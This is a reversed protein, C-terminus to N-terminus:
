PFHFLLNCQNLSNLREKFHIQFLIIRDHSVCTAQNYKDKKSNIKCKNKPRNQQLISSKTDRHFSNITRRRLLNSFHLLAKLFVFTQVKIFCERFVRMQHSLVGLNRLECNHKRTSDPFSATHHILFILPRSLFSSILVHRDRQPGLPQGPWSAQGWNTLQANGDM